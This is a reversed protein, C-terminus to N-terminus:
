KSSFHSRYSPMRESSKMKNRYETSLLIGLLIHFCLFNVKNVSMLADVNAAQRVSRSVLALVFYVSTKKKQISWLDSTVPNSKRLLTKNGLMLDYDTKKRSTCTSKIECNTESIIIINVM